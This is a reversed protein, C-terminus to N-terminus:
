VTLRMSALAEFDEVYMQMKDEALKQENPLKTMHTLSGHSNLTHVDKFKGSMIIERINKTVDPWILSDHFIIIGGPYVFKEWSNFDKRLEKKDHEGDIFLLRIPKVWDQSIDEFSGEIPEIYEQLKYKKINKNFAPLFKKVKSDEEEKFIDISYVKGGSIAKSGQALCIASRGFYGGLEVIAGLNKNMQALNYLALGERPWLYGDVDKPFIFNQSRM